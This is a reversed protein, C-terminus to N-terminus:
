RNSVFEQTGLILVKQIIYVGQLLALPPDLHCWDSAADWMPDVLFNTDVFQVVHNASGKGGGGSSSSSNMATEDHLEKVVHQIAANYGDIMTPLRWDMPPCAGILGGLPNYNISRYVTPLTPFADYLHWAMQRYKGYFRALTYPGNNNVKFRKGAAWQGVSKILRQCRNDSIMSRVAKSTVQYPMRFDHYQIAVNMRQTVDVAETLRQAMNRAHSSGVICIIINSSSEVTGTSTSSTTAQESSEFYYELFPEVSAIPPLFEPTVKRYCTALQYRTFLPKM